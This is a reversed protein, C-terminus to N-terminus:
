FMIGVIYISNVRKKMNQLFNEDFFNYFSIEKTDPNHFFLDCKVIAIRKIRVRCM